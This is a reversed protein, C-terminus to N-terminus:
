EARSRGFLHLPRMGWLMFSLAASGTGLWNKM